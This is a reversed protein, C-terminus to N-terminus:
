EMLVMHVEKPGHVGIVLKQEIDATRSPGTIFNMYSGMDGEGEYYALRRLIFLDDLSELVERPRVVAVHVPPVLSVLRSLGRRPLVVATGTEAIAYDVGTIGIGARAARERLAERSYGSTRAMVTVEVGMGDLPGDVQVSEFVEEDSRVVLETSSSAALSCIYDLAEEPNSTRTVNWGRLRSVTALKELLERNDQALKERIHSAKEKIQAPTEQLRAYPTDPPSRRGKGLASRV